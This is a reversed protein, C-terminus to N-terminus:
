PTEKVTPVTLRILLVPQMEQGTSAQLGEGSNGGSSVVLEALRAKEDLAALSCSPPM